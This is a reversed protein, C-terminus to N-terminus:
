KNLVLELSESTCEFHEATECLPVCLWVVSKTLRTLYIQGGCWGPESAEWSGCEVWVRM